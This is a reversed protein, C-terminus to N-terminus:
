FNMTANTYMFVIVSAPCIYPIGYYDSNDGKQQSTSCNVHQGWCALIISNFCGACDGTSCILLGVLAWCLRRWNNWLQRDQKVTKAKFDHWFAEMFNVNFGFCYCLNFSSPRDLNGCILHSLYNPDEWGWKVSVSIVIIKYKLETNQWKVNNTGFWYTFKETNHPCLVMIFILNFYIIHKICWLYGISFFAFWGLIDKTSGLSQYRSWVEDTFSPQLPYWNTIVFCCCYM